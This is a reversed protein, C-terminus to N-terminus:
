CSELVTWYCVYQFCEPCRRQFCWSLCSESCEPCCRKVAGRSLVRFLVQVSVTWHCIHDSAGQVASQFAGQVASQCRRMAFMIQACCRYVADQCRRIAFMIQFVRFLVGACCGASSELVTWDCCSGLVKFLVESLM